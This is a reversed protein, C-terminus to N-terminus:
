WGKMTREVDREVEKGAYSKKAKEKDKMLDAMTRAGGGTTLTWGAKPAKKVSEATDRTALADMSITARVPAVVPAPLVYANINLASALLLAMKRHWFVGPPLPLKSLFSFLSMRDGLDVGVSRLRQTKRILFTPSLHATRLSCTSRADM